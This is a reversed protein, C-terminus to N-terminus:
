QYGTEPVQRNLEHNARVREVLRLSDNVLAFVILSGLLVLGVKQFAVQAKLSVPSGRLGEVLFLMAHGGDLIPIPLLNLVMLAISIFAIRILLVGPAGIVSDGAIQAITIPGAVQRVADRPKTILQWFGQVTGGVMARTQLFGAEVAEPLTLTVPISPLTIGIVGYREGTTQDIQALTRIGSTLRQGNREFEVQVEEDPRSNILVRMEEWTAVPTGDIAVVRDGARMGAQYAPMGPAVAGVQTEARATLTAAVETAAGAPITLSASGGGARIVRVVLEDDAGAQGAAVLFGHWTEIPTSGVALIEDGALFGVEAARGTATDIVSPPTSVQYGVIGVLFNAVLALVLNALPGAVAIVFRKAWHASLFEDPDGKRGEDDPQDGAMKVYGGLPVASIAYTTQGFRRALVPPGFGVSFKEVRVGFARAALFHGLEHALVIVGLVVLGLLVNM